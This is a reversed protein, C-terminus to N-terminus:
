TDEAIMQKVKEVEEDPVILYYIGDITTGTGSMQYNDMNKRTNSYGSLLKKMDDFDLNTDMNNGLIDITGSIKPISAISAGKDIIGEIVKRQRKTRGFDGEPDQKRMRVFSMAKDGDMDTPGKTFNYKGDQWEIENNVTIGGLQDVLEKLGSMNMSVFFDFDMDLLNEVTAISMDAGGFAYAHNIKDEHGRGIIETRTDRPISIMQMSNTKPKLSLVMIADSRGRDGTETDIGLLLINVQKTEKLKKKGIVHDISEVTEYMKKNVTQKANHYISYAYGGVGLVLVLLVVLTIKWWKKPSKEKHRSSRNAMKQGGM